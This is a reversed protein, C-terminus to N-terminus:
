FGIVGLGRLTFCCSGCLGVVVDFCDVLCVVHVHWMM